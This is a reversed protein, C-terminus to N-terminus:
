PNSKFFNLLALRVQLLPFPLPLRVPFSSLAVFCKKVMNDYVDTSTASSIAAYSEMSFLEHGM